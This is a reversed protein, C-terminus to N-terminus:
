GRALEAYSLATYVKLDILKGKRRQNVLWRPLSTLPVLHTTIQESGDGHADGVKSLGTAVFITIIEDCIGASSTGVAVQKLSRARYGTEELLERRAASVLSEREQGDIDGALGAPLEIVTADLPPRHQEVLILERKPTIAVIGVIGSTKRRHAFEWTGRRAMQIFKGDYVIELKEPKRPM